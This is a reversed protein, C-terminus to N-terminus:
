DWRPAKMRKNKKHILAHTSPKACKTLFDNIKHNKALVM